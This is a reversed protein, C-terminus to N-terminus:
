NGSVASTPPRRRRDHDSLRNGSSRQGAARRVVANLAHDGCPLGALDVLIGGGGVPHTAAPPTATLAVVCEYASHKEPLLGYLKLTLQPKSPIKNLLPRLSGARPCGGAVDAVHAKSPRKASPELRVGAFHIRRAPNVAFMAPRIRNKLADLHADESRGASDAATQSAPPPRGAATTSSWGATAARSARPRSTRASSTTEGAVLTM